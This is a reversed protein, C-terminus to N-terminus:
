HVTAAAPEHIKTGFEFTLGTGSRKITYEPLEWREGIFSLKEIKLKDLHERTNFKAGTVMQSKEDWTVSMTFPKQLVDKLQEELRQTQLHKM